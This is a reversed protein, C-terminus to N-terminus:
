RLPLASRHWVALELDVLLANVTREADYSSLVKVANATSDGPLVGDQVLAVGVTICDETRGGETICFM